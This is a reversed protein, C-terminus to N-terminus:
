KVIGRESSKIFNILHQIEPVLEIEKEIKELAQRTSLNERYLIRHAQKVLGEAKESIGHRKMGVSNIARVEVPNGDAIMFPPLDQTIKSCGGTYCLRGLRVFQHIGCLGGIGVDDEVIVHGALTACNAMIVGNGVICDHAIHSYAMIHCGSGIRTVDGDATAANVTVFERITTRDGIEVRPAGGKYKLDQTMQGISAFPFVICGAGLSTWGDVVVHSMLLTDAGLKVHPGIVCYPGIEVGESLEAGSDIIATPHITAM